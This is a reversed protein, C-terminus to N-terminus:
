ELEDNNEKRSLYEERYKKALDIEKRPTKQTKKVFGNTLIIKKGVMFFYLVRVINSSHRTRMEFIGDDLHKVLEGQPLNGGTALLELDRLTKAYLKEPLEEILEYVPYRGDPKDYPIVEFEM